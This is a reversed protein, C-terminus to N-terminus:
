VRILRLMGEIRSTWFAVEPDDDGVDIFGLLHVISQEEEPRVSSWDFDEV